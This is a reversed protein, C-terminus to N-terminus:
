GSNLDGRRLLRSKDALMLFSFIFHSVCVVVRRFMVFGSCLGMTCGGFSMALIIMGLAFPASGLGLLVGPVCTLMRFRRIGFAGL